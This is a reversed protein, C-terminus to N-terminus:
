GDLRETALEPGADIADFGEVLTGTDDLEHRLANIM